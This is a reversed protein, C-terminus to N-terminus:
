ASGGNTSQTVTPSFQSWDVATTKYFLEVTAGVTIDIHRYCEARANALAPSYQLGHLLATALRALALWVSPVTSENVSSLM